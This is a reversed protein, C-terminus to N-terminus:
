NVSNWHVKTLLFRVLTGKEEPNPFATTPFAPNPDQQERVSLVEVVSGLQEIARRM